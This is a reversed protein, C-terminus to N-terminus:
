HQTLQFRIHRMFEVPDYWYTGVMANIDTEVFLEDGQTFDIGFIALSPITTAGVRKGLEKTKKSIQRKQLNCHNCLCQFDDVTQTNSDLVRLDNYLDNKHDTVLDSHSGCVVCGIAKHHKDIDGRIPRAHGFLVNQNIGITRLAEIKSKGQKEWLYYNVGFFVGHRAAGNNSLHLEKDNDITERSIWQSCGSTDPQFLDIVAQHKKSIKRSSTQTQTEINTVITSPTDAVITTPIDTVITSPTDAVITTPIDTVITSPTDTVITTPIDTVITTPIDTVITPPIMTQDNSNM